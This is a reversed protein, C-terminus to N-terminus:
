KTTTKAIILNLNFSFFLLSFTNLTGPPKIMGKIPIAEMVQNSVLKLLNSTIDDM